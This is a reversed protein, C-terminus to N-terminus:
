IRRLTPPTYLDYLFTYKKLSIYLSLILLLMHENIGLQRYTSYSRTESIETERAPLYLVRPTLAM